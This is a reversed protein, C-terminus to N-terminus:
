KGRLYPRVPKTEQPGRYPTANGDGNAEEWAHRWIQASVGSVNSFYVSAVGFVPHQEHFMYTPSVSGYHKLLLRRHEERAEAHERLMKDVDDATLRRYGKFVFLLRALKRNTYYPFGAKAPGGVSSSADLFRAILGSVYGMQWVVQKFSARNNIMATVKDAERQIVNEDIAHFSQSYGRDVGLLLEHPYKKVIKRLYRPLISTAKVAALKQPRNLNLDVSGANSPTIFLLCLLVMDM